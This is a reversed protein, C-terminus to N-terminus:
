RGLRKEALVVCANSDDDSSKAAACLRACEDPTHVGPLGELNSGSRDKNQMLDNVCVTLPELEARCAATMRLSNYNSNQIESGAQGHALAWDIATLTEKLACHNSSTEHVIGKCNVESACEKKCWELDRGMYETLTTGPLQTDEELLCPTKATIKDRCAAVMQMSHVGNQNAERFPQADWGNLLWCKQDWPTFVYGKCNEDAACLPPCEEMARVMDSVGTIMRMISGLQNGWTSDTARDFGANQDYYTPCIPEGSDALETRCEPTM